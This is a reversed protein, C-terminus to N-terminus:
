QIGFLQTLLSSNFGLKSTQIDPPSIIKLYKGHQEVRLPFKWIKLMNDWRCSIVVVRGGCVQRRMGWAFQEKELLASGTKEIKTEIWIENGDNCWNIDPVGNGTTTEIRQIHGPLKGRLWISFDQESM